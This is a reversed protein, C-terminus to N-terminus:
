MLQMGYRYWGTDQLKSKHLYHEDDRGCLFENESKKGRLFLQSRAM